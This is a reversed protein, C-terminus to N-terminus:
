RLRLASRLRMRYWCLVLLPLLLWGLAGGFKKVVFNNSLVPDTTTATAQGQFDMSKTNTTRVLITVSATENAGLDGLQCHDAAADCSGATPTASELTVAAPFVNTLVVSQATDPGQNTVQAIYQITGDGTNAPDKVYKGNDGKLVLVLDAQATPGTVGTIQNVARTADVIGAGCGVCSAPFSRASDRMATEVVDPTSMPSVGYLLAAVGSVHPAAMSTGQYYVYTYSAPAMVGTNGASLIGNPDTTTTMSGGPAAIDVVSGYNSYYARGGARTTAAVTFAGPCNGPAYLDANDTMNGAATVVVVGQARAAAIADAYSQSCTGQVTSSLSMNIVKAPYPNNPVGSVSLGAAWYIADVIDSTYGGCRGLVRVPLISADPAVGSIGIGNFAQAAIIGSVHSGHWSSPEDQTPMGSGCAGATVGDGPDSPDADRGDGDNAMFTDSVFDYGPLTNAVLDPHALIGTDLVAVVVGSGTTQDWAGAPDIGGTAEQLSWQKAYLPDTPIAAPVMRLDPEVYEVDPDQIFTQVLKRIDALSRAHDLAMVHAGNGMQRLLTGTVHQDAQLRQLAPVLGKGALAKSVAARAQPKFKVILRDVPLQDWGAAQVVGSVLLLGSMVLLWPKVCSLFLRGM